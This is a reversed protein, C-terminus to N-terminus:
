LSLSRSAVDLCLRASSGDEPQRTARLLHRVRRVLKDTQHAGVFTAEVTGSDSVVVTTPLMSIRYRRRTSASALATPYSMGLRQAALGLDAPSMSDVSLALMYVGNGKLQAWATALRPIENRCASCWTAWFHLIKVGPRELEAGIDKGSPYWGELPPANTGVKVTEPQALRSLLLSMGAGVALWALVTPRSGM